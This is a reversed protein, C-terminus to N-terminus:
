GIYEKYKLLKGRKLGFRMKLIYIEVGTISLRERGCWRRERHAYVGRRKL